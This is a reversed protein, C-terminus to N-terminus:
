GKEVKQSEARVNVLESLIEKAKSEDGFVSTLGNM